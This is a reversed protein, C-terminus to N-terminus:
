FPFLKFPIKMTCFYASVYIRRKPKVIDATFRSIIFLYFFIAINELNNSFFFYMGNQRSGWFSTSLRQLPFFTLGCQM